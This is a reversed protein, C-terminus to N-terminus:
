RSIKCGYNNASRTIIIPLNHTKFYSLAIIEAAAKSSSYPSSANLKATEDFSGQNTSGYVEDTSIQIFKEIKNERTANLLNVTGVINSKIFNDSDKISNDVHSEAAFNFIIEPKEQNFIRNIEEKNCIDVKIFKYRPDNSLGLHEINKGQGAYTQKDLNIINIEEDIEPNTLLYKIFNSGIFGCGGTVLIKKM